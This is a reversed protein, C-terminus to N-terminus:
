LRAPGPARPGGCISLAFNGAAQRWGIEKWASAPLSFALQKASIPQHDASRQLRKPAVGCGTKVAAGAFPQQGPEGVTTSSKVGVM